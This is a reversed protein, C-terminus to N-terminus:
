VGSLQRALTEPWVLSLGGDVFINQGNVFGAAPSCLFAIVGASDETTAMRGLPVVKRYMDHLPENKLYFEKSEDKLFTFPTVINARIGKRGLNVAYYRAMQDMGAKAVHYSLAQGEGVFTGFVSSVMVLGRDGSPAFRDKLGEVIRRTATLSVEIEGTWDDDKGRYRQCFVVYHLPGSAGLADAVAADFATADTLDAVWHRTRAQTRDEAPPERRGIISVDHGSAALVRGAVRGLGRTGGVILTHPM